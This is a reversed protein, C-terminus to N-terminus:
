LFKMAYAIAMVVPSLAVCWVGADLIKARRTAAKSYRVIQEDVSELQDWRTYWLAADQDAKGVQASAHAQIRQRIANGTTGVTLLNSRSGRLLVIGAIFFWWCSLVGLLVLQVTADQVNFKGLAYVAVGGAGGAVLTSFKYSRDHMLEYAARAQELTGEATKEAYEISNM